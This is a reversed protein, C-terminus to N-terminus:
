SVGRKFEVDGEGKGEGKREEKREGGKGDRRRGLQETREYVQTCSCVFMCYVIRSAWSSTGTQECCLLASGTSGSLFCSTLCFVIESFIICFYLAGTLKQFRFKADFMIQFALM